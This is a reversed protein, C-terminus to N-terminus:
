ISNSERINNLLVRKHLLILNEHMRRYYATHQKFFGVKKFSINREYDKLFYPKEFMCNEDLKNLYEEDFDEMYESLGPLAVSEENIKLLEFVTNRVSVDQFAGVHGCLMHVKESVRKGINVMASNNCQCDLDIYTNESSFLAETWEEDTYKPKYDGDQRRQLANCYHIFKVPHSDESKNDYEMSWKLGPGIQSTLPVTGDGSQYYTKLPQTLKRNGYPEKLIKYDNYYPTSLNNSL